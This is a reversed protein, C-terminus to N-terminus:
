TSKLCKLEELRTVVNELRTLLSPVNATPKNSKIWRLGDVPAAGHHLSKNITSHNFGAAGAAAISEFSHVVRGTDDLAQIPIKKPLKTRESNISWNARKGQLHARTSERKAINVGSQNRASTRPHSSPAPGAHIM